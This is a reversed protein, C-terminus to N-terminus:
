PLSSDTLMLPGSFNAVRAFSLIDVSKAGAAVLSSASETISAGTTVVDDILLIRKAHVAHAQARIKGRVNERRELASSRAQRLRSRDSRTLAKLSWPIGLDHSLQSAVLAMHAFGRESVTHPLSPVAVILDWSFSRFQICPLQEQLAFLLTRALVQALKPDAGYKLQHVLAPSRDAFYTVSCFGGFHRNSSFAGASSPIALQGHRLDVIPVAPPLDLQGARVLDRLQEIPCCKKCLLRGAGRAAFLPTECIRCYPQTIEELLSRLTNFWSVQLFNMFTLPDREIEGGEGHM